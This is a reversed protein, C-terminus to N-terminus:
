LFLHEIKKKKHIQGMNNNNHFMDQIGSIMAEFMSWVKLILKLDSITKNKYAKIYQFFNYSFVVQFINKVLYKYNLMIIYM